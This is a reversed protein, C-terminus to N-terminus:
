IGFYGRDYMFGGRCAVSAGPIGLTGGGLIAVGSPSFRQFAVRLAALNGYRLFSDIQKLLLVPVTVGFLLLSFSGGGVVFWFNAGGELVIVWHRFDDITLQRRFPSRLITGLSPFQVTSFSGGVSFGESPWGVTLGGALAHFWTTVAVSKKTIGITAYQGTLFTLSLDGGGTGTVEWDTRIFTSMLWDILQSAFDSRLPPTDDGPVPGPGIVPATVPEGPLPGPHYITEGAFIRNPDVIDAYSNKYKRKFRDWNALPDGYIASAYKSIWDGPKVKISRDDQVTVSYGGNSYIRSM